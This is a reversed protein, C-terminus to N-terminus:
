RTSYPDAADRLGDGLFNFSLVTSIIFVVPLLLWPYHRVVTINMTDQLMVGWSVVPPRLGLGLFSLSTEALIMTPLQLTLSVIIHSTFGPILHRFLIRPHSAGLLRAATAYDEERLALIKGRVVRALRTWVLLSIVITIFFYKQINGWDSPVVAALALWLPLQPFSQIIEIVRQIVIDAVGSLYGSIGGITVGLIFTIVVGVLGVSLSVRSGYIIRTLIDHGHKDAGLMYFTADTTETESQVARTKIEEWKEQNIGFFHRRMPIAQWLKYPESKVFFGLPVHLDKNVYYTKEFSIPNVQRTMPNVYIGKSLSFKPLQPPCYAYDLNRWNRTFPAFFECFAALTYMVMLVYLAGVALKHRGFRLKILEWQSMTALTAQKAAISEHADNELKEPTKPKETM